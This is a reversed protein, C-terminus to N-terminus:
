DGSITAQKKNMVEACLKEEEKEDWKKVTQGCAKELKDMHANLCDHCAGKGCVVKGACFKNFDAKCPHDANAAGSSLLIAFAAAWYV